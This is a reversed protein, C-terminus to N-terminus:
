KMINVVRAKCSTYIWSALISTIHRVGYYVFQPLSVPLLKVIFPIVPISCEITHACLIVMSNRGCWSLIPSVVTRKLLKSLYYIALTGGCAGIIDIPLYNFKYAFLDIGGFYLSIPWCIIAVVYLIIPIKYKRVSYGIVIFILSEIGRGICFPTTICPHLIIMVISLCACVVLGWRDFRSFLYFFLKGWFLAILFWVYTIPKDFLTNEYVNDLAFLYRCVNHTFYSSEGKYVSVILSFLCCVSAVVIYPLVLQKFNKVLYQKWNCEAFTKAFYGSVIFFLPIHFSYILRGFINPYWDAHGLMVCLIAIGKM